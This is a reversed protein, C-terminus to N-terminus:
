SVTCASSTANIDGCDKLAQCVAAHKSAAAIEFPTKDDQNKLNSLANRKEEDEALHGLLERVVEVRGAECAGHLASMKTSTQAMINAGSELLLKVIEAHGGIAAWHLSTRGSKDEQDVLAGKSLLYECISKHGAGAARHLPRRDSAGACNVDYSEEECVPSELLKRCTELDGKNAAKHLDNDTPM